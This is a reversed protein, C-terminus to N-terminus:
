CAVTVDFPADLGAGSPSFERVVISTPGVIGVTAFGVAPGDGVLGDSRVNAVPVCGEISDTFGVVYKGTFSRFTLSRNVGPSAALIAGNVDISAFLRPAAAGPDGKPGQPGSEGIPGQPGQQNWDLAIEKSPLCAQLKPNTADTVRIKGNTKNYCGHIVGGQDPISGLAVGTGLLMAAGVALGIRLRRSDLTFRM